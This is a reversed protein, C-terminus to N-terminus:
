RSSATSPFLGHAKLFEILYRDFLWPQEIQCAHGAGYLIKMECGPIRAKLAAARPHSGDESGTLIIAPCAIRSHHDAADPKALAEFQHIISAVDAQANREAFLDAFFHALPTARFAPSLDEFTYGWRYGIGQERYAAIRRSTFEKGPNYGTGSLVLAATRKPQQHHM